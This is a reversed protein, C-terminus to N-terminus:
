YAILLAQRAVCSLKTPIVSPLVRVWLVAIFYDGRDPPCWLYWANVLVRFDAPVISLLRSSEFLLKTVVSPLVLPESVPM